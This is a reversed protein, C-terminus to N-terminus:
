GKIEYELVVDPFTIKVKLVHLDDNNFEIQLDSLCRYKNEEIIKSIDNIINTETDENILKEFIYNQLVNEIEIQFEYTTM